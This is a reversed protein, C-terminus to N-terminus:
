GCVGRRQSERGLVSHLDVEAHPHRQGHDHVVAAALDGPRRDPQQAGDWRHLLVDRQRYGLLFDEVLLQVDGRGSGDDPALEVPEGGSLWQGGRRFRRARGDTHRDLGRGRGHHLAQGLSVAPLSGSRQVAVLRNEPDYGYAYTNDHTMNGSADYQYSATGAATYENLNNTTYTSTGSGDIVSTRNGAAAYNFTTDTALYDFGSPYDVATIQYINDYSYVHTRVGSGDTVMMSTRNGVNDYMYSYKHQGNGTQNDIYSLRSATDYSYNIAAGNAYTLGTRRSRDDFNYSALATGSSNRVATMRSLEDYDYTIYTSDPYTLRTRNSSADYQYSVTKYPNQNIRASGSTM